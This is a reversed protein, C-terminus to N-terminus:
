ISNGMVLMTILVPEGAIGSVQLFCTQKKKRYVLMGAEGGTRSIPAISAAWGRSELLARYYTLVQGASDNTRLALYVGGTKDNSVDSVREAGPYVPLAPPPQIDPGPEPYFVFILHRPETRPSVVLFRAERDAWKAVGSAGDQTSTMKVVAGQREFRGRLQELVPETYRASYLKMRTKKGNVTMRTEYATDWALGAVNLEHGVDGIIQFVRASAIAACVALLLFIM